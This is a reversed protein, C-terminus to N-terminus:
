LLSELYAANERIRNTVACGVRFPIIRPDKLDHVLEKIAKWIRVQEFEREEETMQM